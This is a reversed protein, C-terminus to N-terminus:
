RKQGYQGWMPNVGPFRKYNKPYQYNKLVFRVYEEYDLHHTLSHKKLQVDDANMFKTKVRTYLNHLFGMSVREKEKAKWFRALMESQPQFEVSADVHNLIEKDTGTHDEFRLIYLDINARKAEERFAKIYKVADPIIQTKYIAFVPRGDIRIYRPDQFYELLHRCHELADNESYEQRMLIVDDGGDWTRSWNENAWCFMFPFDPKGTKQMECAPRELLRKGNFWYHYYCFGYIGYFLAMDAQAERTEALRLDYFGLDAPIHPQYQGEFIPKAKTVNSWETFGKGWWLDNEPIPHFQPLYMAIARILKNPKVLCM